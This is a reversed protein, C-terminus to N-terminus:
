IRGCPRTRADWLGNAYEYFSDGPKAKADLGTVDFGWAGFHMQSAAAGTTPQDASAAESALRLQGLSVATGALLLAAALFCHQTAM